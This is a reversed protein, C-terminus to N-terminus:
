CILFIYLIKFRKFDLLVVLKVVNVMRQFKQEEKKLELFQRKLKMKIKIDMVGLKIVSMYVDLVDM